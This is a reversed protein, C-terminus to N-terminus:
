EKANRKQCSLKIDKVGLNLQIYGIIWITHFVVIDVTIDVVSLLAMFADSTGEDWGELGGRTSAHTRQWCRLTFHSRLYGQAFQM